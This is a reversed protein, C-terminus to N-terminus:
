RRRYSHSHLLVNTLSMDGTRRWLPDPATAESACVFDNAPTTYYTRGVGYAAVRNRTSEHLVADSPCHAKAADYTDFRPANVGYSALPPHAAEFIGRTVNDQPPLTRHMLAGFALFVVIVALGGFTRVM